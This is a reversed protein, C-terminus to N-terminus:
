NTPNFLLKAFQSYDWPGNGYWCGDYTYILKMNITVCLLLFFFISYKLYSSKIEFVLKIFYAFPIILVAYFDVFGRHGLGCGLKYSWWSAYTYTILIFVSIIIIGNHKKRILLLFLGILMFIQIPNNTFFGNEFAFLVKLIQPNFKYIFSENGYSYSLLSNYLYHYYIFQPILIILSIIGLFIFHKWSIFLRQKINEFSTVDFFFLPIFFIINIPRVLIIFGFCIAPIIINKYNNSALYKKYFFLFVAVLFFSYIHSLGTEQAAYYYLNTGMLYLFISVYIIKEEFYNKLYKFLFILGFMLYFVAAIDISYNYPRTFGNAPINNLICYAHTILFFPMELIAIGCPYKTNIKNLKRDFFFGEGTKNEISDPFENTNFHYIFLAPLYIYYGAKDSFIESHYNFEKARSHINLTAFTMAGFLILWVVLNKHKKIFTM